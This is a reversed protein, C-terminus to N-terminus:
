DAECYWRPKRDAKRGQWRRGSLPRAPLVTIRSNTETRVFLTLGTNKRLAEMYRMYLLLRCAWAIVSEGADRYGAICVKLVQLEKLGKQMLEQTKRADTEVSAERFADITRRRAYERFNYAAFQKSQRLLSRFLSRAEYATANAAM